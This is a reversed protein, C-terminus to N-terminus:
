FPEDPNAMLLSAQEPVVAKKKKPKDDHDHKVAAKFTEAPAVRPHMVQKGALLDKITLIQIRPVKMSPFYEPVYFGAGVAEKDMPGTQPELTVFVGIEAKDRQRVANLSRVQEVNVHGSKVSVVAKKPKGSEDDFFYILGDLGKDAGKKDQSPRADILGLAWTQFKYRDELALATGGAVDTPMGFVEYKSLESAFATGLRHRILTIALHTIDIGIWRRGLKEAADIATGCGCFPDLVVYGKESSMELIRRLLTRPKQTPYGLDEKKTIPPIDDWLDQLPIGPMENSYQKLRPMGTKRYFLKGAKEFEVLNSKKYGWYRGNYPRVAKYDWGDKPNKYEEDLDGQWKSGKGLPKKVHWDYEVDGGPKAATLDTQKFRLSGEKHRYESKLYEPTYPTYIPVFKRDANKGKGYYFIVDHIKGCRKM